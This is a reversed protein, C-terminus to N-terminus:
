GLTLDTETMKNSYIHPTSAEGGVGLPTIIDFSLEFNDGDNHSHACKTALLSATRYMKLLYHLWQISHLARRRRLPPPGPTPHARMGTPV